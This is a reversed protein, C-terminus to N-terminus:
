AYTIVVTLFLLLKEHFHQKFIYIQNWFDSTNCGVMFAPRIYSKKNNNWPTCHAINHTLFDCVYYNSLVQYTLARNYFQDQLYICPSDSRQKVKNCMTQFLSSILLRLKIHSTIRTQAFRTFKHLITSPWLHNLEILKIEDFKICLFYVTDYLWLWSCWPTTTFLAPGLISGQPVGNFLFTYM